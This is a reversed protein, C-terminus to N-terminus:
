SATYDNGGNGSFSVKIQDNTPASYEVNDIVCQASHFLSTVGDPKWDITVLSGPQLMSIPTGGAATLNLLGDGSFPTDGLGDQYQKKGGNPSQTVDHKDFKQAFKFNSLYYVTSGVTVTSKEGHAYLTNTPTPASM